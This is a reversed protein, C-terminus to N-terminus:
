TGKRRPRHEVCWGVRRPFVPVLGFLLYYWDWGEEVAPRHCRCCELVGYDKRVVEAQRRSAHEAVTEASVGRRRLERDIIELAESEMETRYVTVRDLLDETTAGEVNAQIRKPNTQM